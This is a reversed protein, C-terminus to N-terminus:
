EKNAVGSILASLAVHIDFWCFPEAPSHITFNIWRRRQPLLVRFTDPVINKCVAKPCFVNKRKSFTKLM